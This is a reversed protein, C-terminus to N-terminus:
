EHVISDQIDQLHYQALHANLGDETLDTLLVGCPRGFRCPQGDKNDECHHRMHNNGDGTRTTCHALDHRQNAYPAISEKQMPPISISISLSCICHLVRSHVCKPANSTELATTRAQWHCQSQVNNLVPFDSKWPMPATFGHAAYAPPAPDPIKCWAM